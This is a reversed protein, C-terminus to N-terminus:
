LLWHKLDLQRSGSLGETSGSGPRRNAEDENEPPAMGSGAAASDLENGDLAGGLGDIQTDQLVEQEVSDDAREEEPAADVDMPEGERMAMSGPPKPFFWQRVKGDGEPGPWGVGEGDNGYDGLGEAPRAPMDNEMNMDSVGENSDGGSASSSAAGAGHTPGHDAEDQGGAGERNAGALSERGDLDHNEVPSQQLLERDVKSSEDMEIM